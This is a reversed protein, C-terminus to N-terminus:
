WLTPINALNRHFAMNSLAQYDVIMAIVMLSSKTMGYIRELSHITHVVEGLMAVLAEDSQIHGNRNYEAWAITTDFQLNM